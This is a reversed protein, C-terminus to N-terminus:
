LIRRKPKTYHDFLDYIGRKLKEFCNKPQDFEVSLNKLTCNSLQFCWAHVSINQGDKWAKQITPSQSVQYANMISNLQSVVDYKM